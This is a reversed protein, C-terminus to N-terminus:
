DEVYWQNKVLIFADTRAPIKGSGFVDETEVDFHGVYEIKDATLSGKKIEIDVINRGPTMYIPEVLCIIKGNPPLTDPLNTSADSDLYLISAGTRFDRIRIKLHCYKILAPSSYGITFKLSSSPRITENEDTSEVKLSTIIVSGDGSRDKRKDLQIDTASATSQLYNQVVEYTQGYHKMKGHELLLTKNCISLIAAMDHSVFLVTKGDSRVMNNIKGLCKKQFSADGVALIEDILLIEPNLYAAVSFGLRVLMGTSYRKVPTDIFSEIESFDVIDDFSRAIETRKMGLIAGNLFINERGTLEPHFGTGVELVSAIRGFIEVRGDTPDTIGAIIKLLTSKGSGNQGIIGVIDGHKLDFSINKLSWITNEVNKINYPTKQIKSAIKKSYNYVSETITERITIYQQKVAQIRYRKSLNDVVIAAENM